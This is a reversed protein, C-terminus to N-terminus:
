HGYKKLQEELIQRISDKEEDKIPYRRKLFGVVKQFRSESDDLVKGITKIIEDINKEIILRWNYSSKYFIGECLLQSARSFLVQDDFTIKEFVNPSKLKGKIDGKINKILSYAAKVKSDIDASHVSSNRILRYYNCINFLQQINQNTGFACKKLTWKLKNDDNKPDYSEGYTPSGALNKFDELFLELCHNISVIYNRSVRTPTDEEIRNLTLELSKALSSYEVNNRNSELFRACMEIYQNSVCSYGLEKKFKHFINSEEM